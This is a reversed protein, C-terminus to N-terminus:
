PKVVRCEVKRAKLKACLEKGAARDRLPGVRLRYFIGKAGLDARVVTPELKGLLDGNAARLLAWARRAGEPSRLAALQVRYRGVAPTVSALKSEAGAAAGGGKKASGKTEVPPAPAAPPVTAKPPSTEAKAVPPEPPKEAKTVPPKPPKETKAVPAEPPPLLREVPPPPEGPSLRSYVLKDQNPVEMGGPKEPRVKVPKNEAKILPVVAEGGSEKGKTYAYWVIGSFGGLAVAIVFSALLRRQLSVRRTDERSERPASISLDPKMDSPM